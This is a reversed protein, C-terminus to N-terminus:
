DMGRAAVALASRMMLANNAVRRDDEEKQQLRERAQESWLTQKLRQARRQWEMEVRRQREEAKRQKQSESNWELLARPAEDLESYAGPQVRDVQAIHRLQVQQWPDFAGLDRQKNWHLRGSEHLYGEPGETIRWSQDSFLSLVVQEKGAKFRKIEIEGGAKHSVRRQVEAKLNVLTHETLRLHLAIRCHLLQPHFTHYTVLTGPALEQVQALTESVNEIPQFEVSASPEWM